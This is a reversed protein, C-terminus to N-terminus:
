DLGRTQELLTLWDAVFAEVGARQFRGVDYLVDIAFGDEYQNVILFLPVLAGTVSFQAAETPIRLPRADNLEYALTM